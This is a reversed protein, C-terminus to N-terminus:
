SIFYKELLQEFRERLFPIRFGIAKFREFNERRYISVRYQGSPQKPRPAYTLHSIIGLSVLLNKIDEAFSGDKSVFRIETLKKLITGEMDFAQQLYAIKVSSPSDFIWPPIRMNEDSKPLHLISYFFWALTKSNIYSEDGKPSFKRFLVLNSSFLKRLLSDFLDLKTPDKKQCFFIRMLDKILSGDPMLGMLSAVDENLFFPLSLFIPKSQNSTRLSFLHESCPVVQFYHNLTEKTLTLYPEASM